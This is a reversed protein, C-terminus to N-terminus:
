RGVYKRSFLIKEELATAGLGTVMMQVDYTCGTMWLRYAVLTAGDGSRNPGDQRHGIETGVLRALGGDIAESLEHVTPVSIFAHAREGVM